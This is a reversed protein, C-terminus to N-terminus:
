ANPNTGVLQNYMKAFQILTTSDDVLWDEAAPNEEPTSLLLKIANEQEPTPWGDLESSQIRFFMICCATKSLERLKPYATEYPEQTATAFLTEWKSFTIQSITGLYSSNRNLSNYVERPCHDHVFPLAESLDVSRATEVTKLTVNYEVEYENHFQPFSLTLYHDKIQETAQVLYPSHDEEPLGEEECMQDIDTLYRVAMRQCSIQWRDCKREYAVLEKEWSPNAVDISHSWSPSPKDLFSLDLNYKAAISNCNSQKAFHASFRKRAAAFDKTGTLTCIESKIGALQAETEALNSQLAKVKKTLTALSQAQMLDLLEHIASFHKAFEAEIPLKKM